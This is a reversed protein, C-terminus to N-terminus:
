SQRLCSCFIIVVVWIPHLRSIQEVQREPRVVKKVCLSVLDREPKGDSVQGVSHSKVIKQRREATRM